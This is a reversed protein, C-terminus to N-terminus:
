KQAAFEASTLILHIVGRVRDRMQPNTPTPNTLPFNANNGVFNQITTKTSGNLPVGVLLNALEDILAPIGGNATKAITMYPKIDMVVSGGGNNFSSLGNANGNGGSGSVFMNTISNTLNVINTDTTLQFEPSDTGTNALTGPFKYDPFFFNFVTPANLPTQSLSNDTSGLVFTSQNVKVTGSRGLPASLLPWLTVGNASRNNPAPYTGTPYVPPFTVTIHDEDTVVSVVYEADQPDNTSVVPADVWVHNGVLLSHNVFTPFKLTTVGSTTTVSYGATVKPILVNGARATAPTDATTVTFSTGNTLVDYIGDVPIAAGGAATQTLFGLYVRSKTTRAVAGNATTTSDTCNVPITFTTGDVVTAVFTSNISPSFVGGSVGSIVVLLGNTLNHAASTTVTCPNGVAFSSIAVTTGGITVDTPPGATSVTMTNSGAPQSYAVNVMGTASVALTNAGVIAASAVSTPAITCRIAGVSDAVTFSTPDIVTVTFSANISTGNTGNSYSGGSVGSITIGNGNSLGHPLATTIVCPNAVTISSIGLTSVISYTTSTPNNFPDPGPVQNHFDLSVAFGTSFDNPTSTVLQLRNSNIGTLQTYTGAYSSAPFARAPGTLRMVPERQKGFTASALAATTSRAEGDLLIQRFVASLDGRVGSGNDKFKQVVRYLYGPTPDSTVLRQILQRCIYPAVNSDNVINDIATELEKLGYQDYPHPVTSGANDSQSGAIAAIGGTGFAAAKVTPGTVTGGSGAAGTCAVPVTFATASTVTVQFSTNIASLGGTFTGTAVGAMTVTDGTTLGHVTSTNVTCPNGTGISGITVRPTRGTAAPSVVNDLLLKANLDHQTPVLLMPDLYNAAPGFSTPLRGSAQLNQAYNWGTLLASMGLITSQSYTPVLNGNSDLVLKGDDWAHNLGVSFLQMIERAYNENPHRGITDDGKQNARMDLYLGMAPTLTVSKLVGRFNGSDALGSTPLCYDVLTDYYDALARGNRQLPGNTDNGYSVVLIESLAFALRQRLQDPATISYKWWTNTFLASPYLNNYDATIGAVVDNSTHTPTKTLQDTIWAAFGNAKVYAVDSPSAGFSAQNLFRAAPADNSAVDTAAPEVYLAPNPATQSGDVLTLNGRIEGNPYTVSHINLYLKGRQIGDLISAASPFTGVAGFNWIYGGDATRLEPHFTDVDDIDYIIEGQPHTDFADVHLHYATKPSTLNGYSFHLVASTGSADVRLNASGSAKTSSAGQPGLNAAYLSGGAPTVAPYDYPQFVYSPVTGSLPYGQLPGGGNPIIPPLGNANPAGAVSPVTGVDDQCWGVAVYDDADAGTNHLVEFYYKQGAVLALWQSKQAASWIKKGTSASVSARRVKNVYESDNSIWLEAANNAAIWFYYNGTKPPVLYGRLREGTNTGYDTDDDIAPISDHAPTGPPIVIDSVKNGGATLIERTVSGVPYITINVISSGTVGSAASNQANIAVNYYGAATPAGDITGTSANLTLGPPLPGSNAALSYAIPGSINPSTVSFNFPTGVYGVATLPSTVATLKNALTPATFLRSQPVIQKIQSASFWYLHAEATPSLVNNWYEIVIDYLVGAKLEITNVYDTVNQTFWRDIILVGNIWVKASDDSRFDISYTESYQPLIQGTWRVSFASNTSAPSMGAPGATSGWGNVGTAFDIVPDTRTMEAGGAFIGTQTPSYTSSSTNQYQGTLGTGTANGAPNIVVSGSISSGLSYGGGAMARVIATVNTKLSANARPNVNLVVSSQGPSFTVSAPLADYDIGEAATGSKELAVTITNFTLPGSRNISIAGTEVPPTAANPPQTASYKIASVTVVGSTAVASTLATLDNGGPVGSTNANNPNYGAIKEAWDGVGDSDSDLDLVIVRYFTGAVKPITLTKPNGDGTVNLAPVVAAWGASNALNTNSQAVYSKGDMTPFSLLVSTANTTATTLKIVSSASFPNTGASIEAGNKVGDGDDDAAKWAASALQADTVSYKLKWIQENITQDVARLPSGLALLALLVAGARPINTSNDPRSTNM